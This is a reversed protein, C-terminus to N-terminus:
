AGPAYAADGESTSYPLEPPPIPLSPRRDRDIEIMKRLGVLDPGNECALRKLLRMAVFPNGDRSVRLFDVGITKLVRREALNSPRITRGRIRAM